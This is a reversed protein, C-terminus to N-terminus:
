HTTTYTTHCLTDRVYLIMLWHLTHTQNITQETPQTSKTPNKNLFVECMVRMVIIVPFSLKHTSEKHVTYGCATVSGVLGMLYFTDSSTAM